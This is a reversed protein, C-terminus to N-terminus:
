CREFVKYLDKLDAIQLVTGDEAMEKQPVFESRMASFVVHEIIWRWPFRKMLGSESQFLVTMIVFLCVCVSCM